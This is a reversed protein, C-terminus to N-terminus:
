CELTAGEQVPLLYRTQGGHQDQPGVSCRDVGKQAVGEGLSSAVVSGASQMQM